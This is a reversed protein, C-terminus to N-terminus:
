VERWPPRPWESISHSWALLNPYKEPLTDPTWVGPRATPVIHGLCQGEAGELPDLGCERAHKRWFIKITNANCM